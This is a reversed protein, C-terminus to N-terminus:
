ALPQTADHQRTHSEKAPWFAMPTQTPTKGGDLGLLLKVTGVNAAPPRVLATLRRSGTDDDVPLEEPNKQGDRAL